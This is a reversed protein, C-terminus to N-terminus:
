QKISLSGIEFIRSVADKMLRINRGEKGIASGTKMPDVAVQIDIRGQKWTINIERTGFRFFLNQVFTLLDRSIEAVLIHKNIHEKLQAIINQNKAFMEAMKKEGIIFLVMDENDLCEKLPIKATKEFLAIYGMIKNDITVEKGSM